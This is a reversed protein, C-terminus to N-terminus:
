IIEDDHIPQTIAIEHWILFKEAIDHHFCTINLSIIM